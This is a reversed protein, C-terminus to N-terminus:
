GCEIPLSGHGQLVHDAVGIAGPYHSYYHLIPNFSLYVDTNNENM